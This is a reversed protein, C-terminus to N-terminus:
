IKGVISNYYFSADKGLTDKVDFKAFQYLYKVVEKNLAVAAALMKTNPKSSSSKGKLSLSQFSGSGASSSSQAFTSATREDRLLVALQKIAEILPTTQIVKTRNGSGVLGLAGHLYYDPNVEDGRVNMTVSVVKAFLFNPDAKGHYVLLQIIQFQKQERPNPVSAAASVVPNPNLSVFFSSAAALIAFYLVPQNGSEFSTTTNTTVASQQLVLNRVLNLKQQCVAIMLPSNSSPRAVARLDFEENTFDEDEEDDEDDVNNNETKGKSVTDLLAQNQRMLTISSITTSSSLSTIVTQKRKTLEQEENVGSNNVNQNISGKQLFDRIIAIAREDSKAIAFGYPTLDKRENLFIDEITKEKPVEAPPQEQSQDERNGGRQQQQEIANLREAESKRFFSSKEYIMPLPNGEEVFHTPSLLIRLFSYNRQILALFIPSPVLDKRGAFNPSVTDMLGQAHLATLVWALKPKSYLAIYNSYPLPRVQHSKKATTNTNKKKLTEQEQELTTSLSEPKKAFRRAIKHWFNPAHFHLCEAWVSTTHSLKVGTKIDDTVFTFVHHLVAIRLLPSYTTDNSNNNETTAM